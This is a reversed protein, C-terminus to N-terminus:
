QTVTEGVAHSNGALFATRGRVLVHLVRGSLELGQYPCHQPQGGACEVRESSYPDWVVLDAYNGKAIAGRRALRLMKAPNEATWRAMRILYHEFQKPNALPKKLVTWLVQLTHGLSSIGSVARGFSPKCKMQESVPVHQAAVADVAKLKLLEWLFNCNAASRIPPFSKMHTDGNKIEQETFYLFQPCTECTLEAHREKAKSVLMVASASALNCIHLQGPSLELAQLTKEVGIVEMSQPYQALQILYVTDPAAKPKETLIQSPRPSRTKVPQTEPAVLQPPAIPRVYLTQGGQYALMEARALLENSEEAQHIEAELAQLMTPTDPDRTMETKAREKKRALDEAYEIIEKETVARKERRALDITNARVFSDNSSCDSNATDYLLNGGLVDFTGPLQSSLRTEFPMKRCPSCYQMTKADVLTSDLIIPLGYGRAQALFDPLDIVGEIQFDPSTLYGKVALYDSTDQLTSHPGLIATYGIDCYLASISEEGPFKEEVCLVVGGAAASLTMQAADEWERVRRINTEILGPSVYWNEYDIPSWDSFESM